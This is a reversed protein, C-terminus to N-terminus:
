SQLQHWLTEAKDWDEKKMSELFQEKVKSTDLSPPVKHVLSENMEAEFGASVAQAKRLVEEPLAALRAVNIGFSKPCSGEGLTYLFTINNRSRREENNHDVSSDEVICEMHGLRVGPEEKWDELLSHYHTAFLVLCQNM